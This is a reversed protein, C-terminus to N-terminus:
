NDLELNPKSERGPGTEPMLDPGDQTKSMDLSEVHDFKDKM